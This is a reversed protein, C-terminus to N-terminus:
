QKKFINLMEYPYDYGEDMLLNVDFIKKFRELSENNDIQFKENKVEEPYYYLCGVGIINKDKDLNLKEISKYDTDLDGFVFVNEVNPFKEHVLKEVHESKNFGYIIDKNYGICKKTKEDFILENAIFLLRGRKIYDNLGKINLLQLFEIIIDKIGGSVILIPINLEILKEYFKDVNKKFNIFKKDNKLEIMKKISDSTLRPDVIINLAKSNWELLKEKRVNEEISLDEEYKLYYDHLKKRQEIIYAQNGGFADQNYAGYSSIYKEGTTYNYKNFLTFDFDSVFLIKDKISDDDAHYKFSNQFILKKHELLTPDSIIIKKSHNLTDM